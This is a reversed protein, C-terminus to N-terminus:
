EFDNDKKCEIDIEDKIARWEGDRDYMSQLEMLSKVYLLIDDIYHTSTLWESASEILLGEIILRSTGDNSCLIWYVISYWQLCYMEKSWVENISYYSMSGLLVM